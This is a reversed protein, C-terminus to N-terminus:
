RIRRANFAFPHNFRETVGCFRGKWISDIDLL